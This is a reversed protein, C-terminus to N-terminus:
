ALWATLVRRYAEEYTDYRTRLDHGPWAAPLLVEPLWPDATIHRVATAALPFLPALAGADGGVLRPLTEDLASVLFRAQESWTHLDWLRNVMRRDGSFRDASPGDDGSVRGGDSDVDASDVAATDIDASDVAASDVAAFDTALHLYMWQCRGVLPSGLKSVM